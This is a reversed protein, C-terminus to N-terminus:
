RDTKFYALPNKIYYFKDTYDFEIIVPQINFTTKITENKRLFYTELKEFTGKHRDFFAIYIKSCNCDTAYFSERFYIKFFFLQNFKILDGEFYTLDTKFVFCKLNKVFSVKVTLKEQVKKAIIDESSVNLENLNEDLITVKKFIKDFVLNSTIQEYYLGTPKEYEDSIQDIHAEVCIMFNSSDLKIIREFYESSILPSVLINIFIFFSHGIFGLLCLSIVILSTIKKYKAKLVKKKILNILVELVKNMTIGIFISEYNLINFFLHVRTSQEMESTTEKYLYLDIVIQNKLSKNSYFEYHEFEKQFELKKCDKNAHKEECAKRIQEDEDYIFKITSLLSYDLHDKYIVSATSLFSHNGIFWKNYCLDVCSDRKDCNSNIQHYDVCKSAYPSKLYSREVMFLRASRKIYKQNFTIRSKRDSYYAKFDIYKLELVLQTFGLSKEYTREEIDIQVRICRALLNTKKKDVLFEEGKFITEDIPKISYPIKSEGKRLYSRIILDKFANETDNEIQAFTKDKFIFENEHMLEADEDLYALQVPICIFVNYAVFDKVPRINDKIVFKYQLYDQVLFVIQYVLFFICSLLVLHNLKTFLEFKINKKLLNVLILFLDRFSLNIFLFILSIFQIYLDLKSLVPSAYITYIALDIKPLNSEGDFNLHRYFLKAYCDTPECENACKDISKLRTQNLSLEIDEDYKYYLISSNIMNLKYCDLLCQIKVYNTHLKGQYTRTKTCNTDYPRELFNINAIQVEIIFSADQFRNHTYVSEFFHILIDNTPHIFLKFKFSSINPFILYFKEHDFDICVYNFRIFSSSLILYDENGKLLLDTVNRILDKPKYLRDIKFIGTDILDDLPLCFSYKKSKYEINDRNFGSLKGEDVLLILNYCLLLICFHNWIKYIM